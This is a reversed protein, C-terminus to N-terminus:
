RAPGAPACAISARDLDFTDYHQEVHSLRNLSRVLLFFRARGLTRFLMRFV